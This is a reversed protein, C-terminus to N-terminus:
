RSARPLRRVGDTAASVGINKFYGDTNKVEAGDPGNLINSAM